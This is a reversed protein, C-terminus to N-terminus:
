CGARDELNGSYEPITRARRRLRPGHCQEEHRHGDRESQAAIIRRRSPSSPEYRPNGAPSCCNGLPPRGDAIYRRTQETRLLRTWWIDLLHFSKTPQSSSSRHARDPWSASVLAVRRNPPNPLRTNPRTINSACRDPLCSFFHLFYIRLITNTTINFGNPRRPLRNPNPARSV